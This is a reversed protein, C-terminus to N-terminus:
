AVSRQLQQVEGEVIEFQMPDLGVNLRVVLRGEGQHLAGPELAFTIRRTIQFDTPFPPIVFAPRQQNFVPM